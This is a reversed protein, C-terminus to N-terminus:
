FPIDDETLLDDSSFPAYGGSAPQQQAAPATAAYAPKQQPQPAAAPRGGGNGGTSESSGGGFSSSGVPQPAASLKEVVNAELEFGKKQMGDPTQNNFMMLKGDVLVSDGKHLMEVVSDALQRWCTVKVLFSGDGAQAGGMNGTRAPGAVQMMFTTVAANTNPTFRKEPESAVTGSLLAKALSM